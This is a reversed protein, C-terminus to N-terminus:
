GAHYMIRQLLKVSSSFLFLATALSLYLKMSFRKNTKPHFLLSGTQLSFGLSYLPVSSLPFYLLIVSISSFSSIMVKSNSQFPLNNRERFRLTILTFTSLMQTCKQKIIDCNSSILTLGFFFSFWVLTQIIIM